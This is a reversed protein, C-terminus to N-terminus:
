PSPRTRAPGPSSLAQPAAVKKAELTLLRGRLRQTGLSIIVAAVLALGSVVNQWFTEVGLLTLSNSLLGMFLVGILVGFMNGEGGTLAIGGILVATLVALEFGAGLQGAPASNLRAATLAGALGASGGAVVYLVLPILKTSIGSLYAAERNVGVAYIHRGTPTMVLYVGALIFLLGAIIAPVPVGAIAGAGLFAFDASFGSVPLPSMLQAAGRGATLVGLTTILSSLGVVAVLVGNVAGVLAGVLIAAGVGLWMSGTNQVVLAACVGGIALTSGVSLDIYGAILLMAVPVAVIGIVAVDLLVGRLNGWSLQSGTTAQVLLVMGILIVLLPNQILGHLLRQPM